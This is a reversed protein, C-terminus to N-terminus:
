KNESVRESLNEFGYTELFEKMISKDDLDGRRVFNFMQSRTLREYDKVLEAFRKMFSRTESIGEKYIKSSLNEAEYKVLTYIEKCYVQYDDCVVDYWSFYEEPMNAKAADDDLGHEAFLKKFMKGSKFEKMYRLFLYEETKVKVRFDDNLFRIVYGEINKHSYWSQLSGALDVKEVVVVNLDDNEKLFADMFRWSCDYNASRVALLVAVNNGYKEVQHDYMTHKDHDSIIEFCFTLDDYLNPCEYLFNIFRELIKRDEVLFEHDSTGKTKLHWKNNHYFLIVLHGNSKDMVIYPDSDLRRQILELATEPQEDINFIKDIPYNIQEGTVIDYCTGRSRKTTHTWMFDHFCTANYCTEIFGGEVNEKINIVPKKHLSNERYIEQINM